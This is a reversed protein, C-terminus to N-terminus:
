VGMEQRQRRLHEPMDKYVHEFMAKASPRPVDYQHLTGNKEAKASEERMEDAYEAEAQTHRADSWLDKSVMHGKLREIPDGLPWAKGEDKPRYASPDDATSHAAVRYTVWEIFTAGHGRRAREAAWKSAAYCALWDNGDVRLSAIGYGYARTAFTSMGSLAIDHYTSIAWRNDVVNLIVPAKYVSAFNLAAHFDGEATAGDGIWAAAINTNGKIASAMGWGVAQIYQTALNGSVTFFGADKFSYLIPLQLGELDDEVNSFIQNMMRSVPFDQAFLLGQQRYTPFHMDDKETALRQATAIAEEGTCQMYFSTKAQRQAKMMREDFARTRMMARLGKSLLEDDIGEAWDGQANFDDDLVRIIDKSLYELEDVSADYAPMPVAGAVPVEFHSFDPEEGPRFPPEPVHMKLPAYETKNKTM